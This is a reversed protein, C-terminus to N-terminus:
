TWAPGDAQVVNLAAGPHERQTRLADQVVVDLLNTTGFGLLDGTVADYIRYHIDAQVANRAPLIKGKWIDRLGATMPMEERRSGKTPYEHMADEVGCFIRLWIRRTALAARWLPRRWAPADVAEWWDCYSCVRHDTSARTM